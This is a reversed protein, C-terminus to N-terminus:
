DPFFLKEEEDIPKNGGYWNRSPPLFLLIVSVIHLLLRINLSAIFGLISGSFVLIIALGLIMLGTFIWRATNSGRHIYYGIALLIVPILNFSIEGDIGGSSMHMLSFIFGIAVSAYILYAAVKIQIPLDEPISKHKIKERNFKKRKDKEISKEVLIKEEVEEGRLELESLAAAVMEGEYHNRNQIISELENKSKLKVKQVYRSM